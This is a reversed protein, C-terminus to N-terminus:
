KAVLIKKLQNNSLDVDEFGKKIDVKASINYSSDKHAVFHYSGNNKKYTITEQSKLESSNNDLSVLKDNIFLTFKYAKEPCITKSINTVKIELMVSKGDELDKDIM